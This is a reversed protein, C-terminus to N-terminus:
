PGQAETERKEAELTRLSQQGTETQRDRWSRSQQRQLHGPRKTAEVSLKRPLPQMKGWGWAWAAFGGPGQVTRDFM